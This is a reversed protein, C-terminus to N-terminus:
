NVEIFNFHKAIFGMEYGLNHVYIALRHYYDTSYKLTLYNVLEEFEKWTRGCIIYDSIKFMWIYMIGVKENQENLFSSTEIDFSIPLDYYMIKNRYSRGIKKLKNMVEIVDSKNYDVYASQNVQKTIM